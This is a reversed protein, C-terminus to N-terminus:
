HSGTAQFDITNQTNSPVYVTSNDIQGRVVGASGYAGGFAGASRSLSYGAAEDSAQQDAMASTVGALLTTATLVTILTKM